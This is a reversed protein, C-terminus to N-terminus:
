ANTSVNRRDLDIWGSVTTVDVHVLLGLAAPAGAATVVIESPNDSTAKAHALTLLAADALLTAQVWWIGSIAVRIPTDTVATVREMCFGMCLDANAATANAKRGAATACVVAGLYFEDAGFAKYYFSAFPIQADPRPLPDANASLAAM